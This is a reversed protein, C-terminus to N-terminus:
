PGAIGPAAPPPQADKLVSGGGIYVQALWCPVGLQRFRQLLIPRDVATAVGFTLRNSADYRFAARVVPPGALFLYRYWDHLQEWSWRVTRIGVSDRQFSFHLNPFYLPYYVALSDLSESIHTTDVFLVDVRPLM